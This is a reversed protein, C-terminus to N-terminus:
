RTSRDQAHWCILSQDPDIVISCIFTRTGGLSLVISRIIALSSRVRAGARSSPRPHPLAARPGCPVQPVDSLLCVSLRVPIVGAGESLYSPAKSSQRTLIPEHQSPYDISNAAQSTSCVSSAASAHGHHNPRLFFSYCALPPRQVLELMKNNTPKCSLASAALEGRGLALYIPMTFFYESCNHREWHRGYPQQYKRENERDREMEGNEEELEGRHRTIVLLSEARTTRTRGTREVSAETVLRNPRKRGEEVSFVRRGGGPVIQASSRTKTSVWNLISLFFRTAITSSARCIPTVVITIVQWPGGRGAIKPLLSSLRDHSAQYDNGEELHASPCRNWVTRYQNASLYVAGVVVQDM